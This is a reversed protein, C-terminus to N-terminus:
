TRTIQGKRSEIARTLSYGGLCSIIATLLVRSSFLLVNRLFSQWPERHFIWPVFVLAVYCSVIVLCSVGVVRHFEERIRLATVLCILGVLGGMVWADLPIGQRYHPVSDWGMVFRLVIFLYDALVYIGGSCLAYTIARSM